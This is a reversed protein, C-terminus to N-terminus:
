VAPARDRNELGLRFHGQLRKFNRMGCLAQVTQGPRQVTQSVTHANDHFVCSTIVFRYRLKQVSGTEEDRREIRQEDLLVSISLQAPALRILGVSHLDGSESKVVPVFQTLIGRHVRNTILELGQVALILQSALVARGAGVVEDLQQLLAKRSNTRQKVARHAAVAALLPHIKDIGEPMQVTNGPETQIGEVLAVEFPAAPVAIVEAFCLGSLDVGVGSLTNRQNGFGIGCLEQDPFGNSLEINNGAGDLDVTGLHVPQGRLQRFVLRDHGHEADAFRYTRLEHSLDTVKAPEGM